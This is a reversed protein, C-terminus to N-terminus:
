ADDREQLLADIANLDDFTRPVLVGALFLELEGIKERFEDRSPFSRHHSTKQFFENMQKWEDYRLDRLPKPLPREYPDLRFLTEQFQERRSQRNAEVWDFFIDLKRLFRSLHENFPGTWVGADSYGKTNRKLKVLDRKLQDVKQGMSGANQSGAANVPELEGIKEMLERMSHASQAVCDPNGTEHLVHLGGLYMAGLEEGYSRLANHLQQQERSLALERPQDPESDVEAGVPEPRTM